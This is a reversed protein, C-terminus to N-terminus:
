KLWPELEELEDANLASIQTEGDQTVKIAKQGYLEVEQWTAGEELARVLSSVRKSVTLEYYLDESDLTRRADPFCELLVHALEDELAVDVKRGDIWEEALQEADRSVDHEVLAGGEYVLHLADIEKGQTRPIVRIQYLHVVEHEETLADFLARAMSAPCTYTWYGFGGEFHELSVTLGPRQVRQSSRRYSSPVIRALVEAPDDRPEEYVLIRSGM